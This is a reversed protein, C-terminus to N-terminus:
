NLNLYSAEAELLRVLAEDGKARAIELRHQLSKQLSHRHVSAAERVKQSLNKNM